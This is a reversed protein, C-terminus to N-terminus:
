LHGNTNEGATHFSITSSRMICIILLAFLAFALLEITVWSMM